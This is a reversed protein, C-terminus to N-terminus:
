PTDKIIEVAEYNAIPVAIVRDERSLYWVGDIMEFTRIDDFGVTGDRTTAVVHWTGTYPQPGGAGSAEAELAKKTASKSM